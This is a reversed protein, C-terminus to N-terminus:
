DAGMGLSLVLLSPPLMYITRYACYLAAEAVGKFLSPSFSFPENLTRLLIRKGQHPALRTSANREGPKEINPSAIRNRKIVVAIAM